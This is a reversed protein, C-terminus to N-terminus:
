AAFLTIRVSSILLQKSSKQTKRCAELWGQYLNQFEQGLHLLRLNEIAEKQGRTQDRFGKLSTIIELLRAFRLDFHNDCKPLKAKEARTSTDIQLKIERSLKEGIFENQFGEYVPCDQIVDQIAIHIM